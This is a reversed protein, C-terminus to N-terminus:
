SGLFVSLDEYICEVPHLLVCFNCTVKFSLLIKLPCIDRVLEKHEALKM